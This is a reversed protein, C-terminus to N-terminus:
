RIEHTAVYRIIRVGAAKGGLDAKESRAYDRDHTLIYEFEDDEVSYIVKARPVPSAKTVTEQEAVSLVVLDEVLAELSEPRVVQPIMCGNGAAPVNILICVDNGEGDKDRVEKITAISGIEGFHGIGYFDDKVVIGDNVVRVKQGAEFM